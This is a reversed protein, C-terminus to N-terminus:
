NRLYTITGQEFYSSDAGYYLTNSGERGDIFDNGGVPRIRNNQEDGILIDDFNSGV